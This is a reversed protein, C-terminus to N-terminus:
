RKLLTFYFFNNAGNTYCATDPAGPLIIVSGDAFTGTFATASYTGTASPIGTINLRRNIFECVNTDVNPLIMLLEENCVTVSAAEICSHGTYHWNSGDNAREPPTQPKVRGGAGNFVQCDPFRPDTSEDCNTNIFNGNHELSIDSESISKSRIANVAREVRQAYTMIETAALEAQRETIRSTGESRFDRSMTYSIAAFLAIGLLIFLFVNGAEHQRTKNKRNQQM